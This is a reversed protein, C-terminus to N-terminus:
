QGRTIYIVDYENSVTMTKVNQLGLFHHLIHTM